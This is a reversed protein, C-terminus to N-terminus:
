HQFARGLESVYIIISIFFLSILLLVLFIWKAARYAKGRYTLAYGGVLVTASFVVIAFNIEDGGELKATSNFFLLVLIVNVIILGISLASNKQKQIESSSNEM